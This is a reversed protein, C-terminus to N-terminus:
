FWDDNAMGNNKGIDLPDYNDGLWNETLFDTSDDAYIDNGNGRGNDMLARIGIQVDPSLTDFAEAVLDLYFTDRYLAVINVCAMVMDDHGTSAEYSGKKNRTFHSFEQATWKDYTRITGNEILSKVESCNKSKDTTQRLGKQKRVAGKRHFTKLYISDEYLDGGYLTKMIQDFYSGYTNWEVVIKLKDIDFVRNDFLLNYCIKAFDEINTLNDRFVGSQDICFHKELQFQESSHVPLNYESKPTAKFIQMVTYDKKLGEALDISIFVVDKKLNEIEYDKRWVLNDYRINFRDLVDFKHHVFDKNNNRINKLGQTTLLLLDSRQFQCAFQENFADEGLIRIQEDAWEQGRGPVDYWPISMHSFGNVGDVASQYLKQFLDYGSPTSTIIM